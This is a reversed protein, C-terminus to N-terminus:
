GFTFNTIAVMRAFPLELPSQSYMRQLRSGAVLGFDDVLRQTLPNNEPMSISVPAGNAQILLARLLTDAIEPSDAYCPGIRYGQKAQRILGYGSISKGEKWVFGSANPMSLWERMYRSRDAPFFDRDYILTEELITDKLPVLPMKESGCNAMANSVAGNFHYSTITHDINFGLRRYFDVQKPMADLIINRGKLREMVTHWLPAGYGQRRYESQVLYFSIYALNDGYEAAAISAIVQENLEGLWFAGPMGQAAAKADYAGPNWGEQEALEYILPIEHSLARRVQYCANRVISDPQM